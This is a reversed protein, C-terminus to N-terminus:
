LDVIIDSYMEANDEEKNMEKIAKIVEFSAGKVAILKGNDDYGWKDMNDRLIQPLAIM